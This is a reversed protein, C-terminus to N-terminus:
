GPRVVSELIVDGVDPIEWTLRTDSAALRGPDLAWSIRTDGSVTGEFDGGPGAARLEGTIEGSLEAVDFGEIRGFGEIRLRSTLQADLTETDIGQSQSWPEGIRVPEPPLPPDLQGVLSALDAEGASSPSVGEVTELDLRGSPLRELEALIPETGAVTLELTAGEGRRSVELRADVPETAVASEGSVALRVDYTAPGLSGRTLAIRDDTCATVALLLLLLLVAVLPRGARTM